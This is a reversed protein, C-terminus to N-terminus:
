RRTVLAQLMRHFHHVGVERTPSYRGRTYFRSRVGCQVSEVVAEDELEVEHLGEGASGARLSADGVYSLFRVRTRDPAVPQVQNVSVGWPYVNLMTGPFLFFYFAAIRQGSDPHGAPLDFAVAGEEAIGLQLSGWAFTETRYAGYDLVQNLAAHVFPIHFGELYNDCYLMWNAPVDYDRSTAADFRLADLDLFGIRALVPRVVDEWAMAPDPSAFVFPGLAAHPVQPLDDCPRPFDRAAEFEPMSVFAGDLAFRRGHYRCRMGRVPAAEEVLVAGRHTCVNSLVRVTGALDRTLVCPEDLAGPLLVRPTAGEGAPLEGTHALMHWTRALVRERLCAYWAPDAYVPAPLTEARTIDPDIHFTDDSM